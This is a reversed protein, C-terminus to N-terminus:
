YVYLDQDKFNHSIVLENFKLVFMSAVSADKGMFNIRFNTTGDQTKSSPKADGYQVYPIAVKTGRYNFYHTEGKKGGILEFWDAVAPTLDSIVIRIGYSVTCGPPLAIM